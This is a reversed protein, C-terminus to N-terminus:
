DAHEGLLRVYKLLPKYENEEIVGKWTPMKSNASFQSSNEIWKKLEKDRPYIHNVQRLDYIGIGDDGHCSNCSYKYYIKKGDSIDKGTLRYEESKLIPKRIKPVTQLYEWIASLEYDSFEVYRQMPFRIYSGDPRFADRTARIFDDESWKGLGTEKDMTLNPTLIDRGNIDVFKSGGGYFEFSNEPIVHDAKNNNGSHCGYCSAVGNALYRGYAIKDKPDPSKIKKESYEEPKMLFRLIFKAVLSYKIEKNDVDAAEVLPDDSKLFAIVSYIDEDSLLPRWMTPAFTGDRMIGTRVLYFLEGDTWTGIGKVPHRTINKSYLM